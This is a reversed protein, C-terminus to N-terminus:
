KCIEIISDICGNKVILIDGEIVTKVEYVIFDSDFKSINESDWLKDCTWRWNDKLLDINDSNIKWFIELSTLLPFEDEEWGSPNSTQAQECIKSDLADNTKSAIEQTLTKSNSNKRNLVDIWILSNNITDINESIESSFFTLLNVKECWSFENWFKVIEDINYSVNVIRLAQKRYNYCSSKTSKGKPTSNLNSSLLLSQSIKNRREEQLQSTIKQKIEELTSSMDSEKSEQQNKPKQFIM